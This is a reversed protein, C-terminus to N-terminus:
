DQYAIDPKYNEDHKAFVESAYFTNENDIFGSVIVGQGERFLDPLVGEYVVVIDNTMQREFDEINFKTIIGKDRIVSGNKVIGGIRFTDSEPEFSIKVVDSPNYFFQTNEKLAQLLLTIGIILFVGFFLVLKIRKKHKPRIM